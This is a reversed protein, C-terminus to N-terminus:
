KPNVTAPVTNHKAFYRRREAAMDSFPIGYDLAVVATGIRGYDEPKFETMPSPYYDPMADVEDHSVPQNARPMIVLIGLPDAFYIPCLTKWEFVKRWKFWMEREWRNIQMGARLNTLRPIKVVVRGVLAVLRFTGRPM